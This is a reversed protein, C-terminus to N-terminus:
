SSITIKESLSKLKDSVYYRVFKGERKPNLLGQAELQKLDGIATGKAINNLSKHSTATVYGYDAESLLYHILQKQRENLVIEKGLKLDIQKNETNIKELYKKFEEISSMIKKIHYDFFYTLDYDDQESYIYAKAYQVPSNKIISSIPLYMFTWYDKRLLYWYFLARALRGNGDTFPHLYGIWFHLFIAKIVPHVFTDSDKDNAFDILRMIETDLFEEKPPIHAIVDENRVVINDSTRRFRNQENSSITDRTIMGHIEFLLEKTLERNKYDEELMKMTKYNNVIMRESENRPERNEIIMMKAAKRTTSAGELQSSAIAEELIGRAIFKQKNEEKIAEYATFIQGGTHIDITHLLKDTYLPRVWVFEKGNEARIQTPRASFKRIQRVLFWFEEHNLGEPVPKFRMKDWYLYEQDNVEYMYPVYKQPEKIYKDLISTKNVKSLDPKDLKYRDM